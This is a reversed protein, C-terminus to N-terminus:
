PLVECEIQNVDALKAWFRFRNKREPITTWFTVSSFGSNGKRIYIRDVNLILGAPITALAFEETNGLLNWGWWKKEGIFPIQLAQFTTVNRTEYHLPFTWDRTLKLKTGIEPIFFRM